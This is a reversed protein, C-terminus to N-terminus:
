EKTFNIAEIFSNAYFITNVVTKIFQSGRITLTADTNGAEILIVESYCSSNNNGAYAVSTTLGHYSSRQLEGTTSDFAVGAGGRSFRTIFTYTGTADWILKANSTTRGVVRCYSKITWFGSNAPITVSMLDKFDTSDNITIDSSQKVLIKSNNAAGIVNTAIFKNGFRQLVVRSGVKININATSIASIASDTPTFKVTLPNVTVVTGILIQQENKKTLIRQFIDKFM